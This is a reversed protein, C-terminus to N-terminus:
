FAYSIGLQNIMLHTVHDGNFPYQLPHVLGSFIPNYKVDVTISFHNNIHVDLSSWLLANNPSKVPRVYGEAANTFAIFDTAMDGHLYTYGLGSTLQLRRSNMIQRGVLLSYSRIELTSAGSTESSTFYIRKSSIYHDFGAVWKDSQITYRFNPLYFSNFYNDNIESRFRNVNTFQGSILPLTIKHSFSSQALSILSNTLLLLLICLNKM